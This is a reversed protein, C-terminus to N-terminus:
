LKPGEGLDLAESKSINTYYFNSIMDFVEEGVLDKLFILDEQATRSKIISEYNADM